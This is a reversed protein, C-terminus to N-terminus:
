GGCPLLLAFFKYLDSVLCHKTSSSENANVFVDTLSSSLFVVIMQDVLSVMFTTSGSGWWNALTDVIQKAEYRAENSSEHWLNERVPKDIASNIVQTCENLM